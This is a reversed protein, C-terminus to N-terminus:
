RQNKQENGVVGWKQEGSKFNGVTEGGRKKTIRVNHKEIHKKSGVKKPIYLHSLPYNHKLKTLNGVGGM